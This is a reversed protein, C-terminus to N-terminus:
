IHILSLDMVNRSLFYRGVPNETLIVENLGGGNRLESPLVVRRQSDMKVSYVGTFRYM